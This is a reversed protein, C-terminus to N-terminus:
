PSAQKAGLLAALGRDTLAKARGQNQYSNLLDILSPIDNASTGLMPALQDATRSQIGRQIATGAEGAAASLARHPNIFARGVTSGPLFGHGIQDALNTSTNSGRTPALSTAAMQREIDRHALMRQTAEDSPAILRLRAEMDPSNLWRKMLDNRTDVKSAAQKLQDMASSRFAQQEGPSFDRTAHQLEDVPLHLASKGLEMADQIEKDGRYQSRAAAYEPVAADVQDLLGNLAVRLQRARTPAIGSGEAKNHILDDLGLKAYHVDGVTMPSATADAPLAGNEQLFAMMKPDNLIKPSVNTVLGSGSPSLTGSLAADGRRLVDGAAFAKEVEPFASRLRQVEAAIHPPLPQANATAYLPAATAKMNTVFQEQTAPINQFDQGMADKMNGLTRDLQGPLRDELQTQLDAGGLSPIDTVKRVLKRGPIGMFDAAVLPANPPAEFAATGLDAPSMNNQRLRDLFTNAASAQGSPQGRLKNVVGAAGSTLLPTMGGILAGAWPLEDTSPAIAKRLDPLTSANIGRQALQATAGTAAGVATRAPLTLPAATSAEITEPTVLGGSLVTSALVPVAGALAGVVAGTNPNRANYNAVKALNAEHAQQYNDWFHGHYSTPNTITQALAAGAQGLGVSANYAIVDGINGQSASDPTGYKALYSSVPDVSAATSTSESVIPSPTGSGGGKGYKQLYSQVPDATQPQVSIGM